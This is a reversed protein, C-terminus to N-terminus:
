LAIFSNPVKVEENKMRRVAAEVLKDLEEETVQIGQKNLWESVFEIVAKKKEPGSKPDKMTQEAAEVATQVMDILRKWRADERLTKLYPILYKTIIMFCIGVAIKIIIETIENM